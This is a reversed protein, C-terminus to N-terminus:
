KIVLKKIETNEEKSIKLLYVGSKLGSIDLKGDILSKSMMAKGLLDFVSIELRSQDTNEINIYGLSTPNPYIKIFDKNYEGVNLSLDELNRATVTMSENNNRVLVVLDKPTSPIDTPIIIYDAFPFDALFELTGGGSSDSITYTNNLAFQGSEGFSANEIMILESEYDSFNAAKLQQITITEPTRPANSLANGYPVQSTELILEGNDGHKLYGRINELVDGDVYPDLFGNEDSVVIGASDDQFFHLNNNDDFNYYTSTVQGTVRYYMGPDVSQNRLALIDAVDIYSGVSVIVSYTAAPSWPDGLNDVLQAVYKYANGPLMGPLFTDIGTDFACGSNVPSDDSADTLWWRIFGDGGTGTCGNNDSSMIFNAVDFVLAANAATGPDMNELVSGNPVGEVILKARSPDLIDLSSRSTIDPNNNLPIVIGVLDATSPITAGIYDAEPFLTRFPFNSGSGDNISYFSSASFTGSSQFTANEVMVLESEYDELNDRIEQTTIVEPVIPFNMTPTEWAAETPIFRLIGNVEELHGKINTLVDGTGYEDIEGNEDYVLIGATDDQFYQQNQYVSGRSYTNTVAGSVIYYKYAEFTGMPSVRLTALDNVTEYAGINVTITYNAEPTIAVGSNDVLWGTVIYSKGAELGNVDQEVGEDVAFITGSTVIQNNSLDEVNWKIFGDGGSGTGGGADNSLNFNTAEFGVTPNNNPLEPDASLTSGSAPADTLAVSPMANMIDEWSTAVRIGDIFGSPGNSRQRIAVSSISVVGAFAQSAEATIPESAVPSNLVYLKSTGSSIIYAAIMLYTTNKSYVTTGWEIQANTGQSIIGFNIKTNDGDDEKVFVRARIDSSSNLSMFFSGGAGAELVNTDLNVLASMYVTGTTVTAFSRNVAQGNAGNSIEASGGLGSSPYSGMSLGMDHNYAVNPPGPSHESWNFGSVLLDTSTTGYDFNEELLTQSFVISSTLVIVFLFYFNKM